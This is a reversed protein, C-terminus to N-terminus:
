YKKPRLRGDARRCHKIALIDDVFIPEVSIADCIRDFSMRKSETFRYIHCFKLILLFTKVIECVLATQMNSDMLSGGSSRLSTVPITVKVSDVIIDDKTSSESIEAVADMEECSTTLAIAFTVLWDCVPQMLMGIMYPHHEM